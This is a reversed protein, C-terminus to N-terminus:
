NIEVESEELMEIGKRVQGLTTSIREELSFLVERAYADAGNRTKISHEQTENLINTVKRETENKDFEAKGKISESDETAGSIIIESQEQAKKVIEEKHILRESEKKAKSIIEESHEEAIVIIKEAESDAYRRKKNAEEEAQDLMAQKQRVIIESEDLSDPIRSQISKIIEVCEEINVLSRITGKLKHSLLYDQLKDLDEKVTM